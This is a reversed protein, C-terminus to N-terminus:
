LKLVNLYANWESHRVRHHNLSGSGFLKTGRMFRDVVLKPQHLADSAGGGTLGRIGMGDDGGELVDAIGGDSVHKEPNLSEVPRGAIM